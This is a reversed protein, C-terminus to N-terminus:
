FSDLLAEIVVGPHGLRWFFDPDYIASDLKLSVTRDSGSGDDV